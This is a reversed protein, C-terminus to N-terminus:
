LPAGDVSRVALQFAAVTPRFWLEFVPIRAVVDAVRDVLAEFDQRNAAPHILRVLLEGLAAAPALPQVADEAAQRLLYIAALEKSAASGARQSGHWPTGWVTVHRAGPTLITRDDSLVRAGCEQAIGSITSKGAGSHGVFMMGLGEYEVAAGHVILAGRSMLLRCMLLEDLPYGIRITDSRGWGRRQVLKAAGPGPEFVIQAWAVNSDGEPSFFTFEETSDKRLRLEWMTSGRAVVASPSPVPDGYDCVVVCDPPVADHVQFVPRLGHVSLEVSPHASAFRVVVGGV